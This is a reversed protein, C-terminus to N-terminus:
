RGLGRRSSMAKGTYIDELEQLTPSNTAASSDPTVALTTDSPPSSNPPAKGASAAGPSAKGPSEAPRARTTAMRAPQPASGPANPTAHLGAPRATVGPAGNEPQSAALAAGADPTVPLDPLTERTAAQRTELAVAEPVSAQSRAGTPLELAVPDAIVRFLLCLLIMVGLPPVITASRRLAPMGLRTTPAAELHPETSWSLVAASHNYNSLPPAPRVASMTTPM